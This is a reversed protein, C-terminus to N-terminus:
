YAASASFCPITWSPPWPPLAHIERWGPQAYTETYCYLKTNTELEYPYCVGCLRYEFVTCIMYEVTAAKKQKPHPPTLM